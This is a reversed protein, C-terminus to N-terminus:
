RHKYFHWEGYTYKEEGSDMREDRDTSYTFHPDMDHKEEGNVRLFGKGEVKGAGRFMTKNVTNVSLCYIHCPFSFWWHLLFFFFAGTTTAVWLRRASKDIVWIMQKKAWSIDLTQQLASHKKSTNDTWRQGNKDTRGASECKIRRVYITRRIQKKRCVENMRKRFSHVLIAFYQLQLLTPM